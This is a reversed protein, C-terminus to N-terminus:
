RLTAFDCPSSAFKARQSYEGNTVRDQLSMIRKATCYALIVWERLSKRACLRLSRLSIGLLNTKNHNERRERRRQALRKPMITKTAAVGRQTM